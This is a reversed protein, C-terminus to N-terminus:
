SAGFCGPGTAWRGRDGARGPARAALQPSVEVALTLARTKGVPMRVSLM